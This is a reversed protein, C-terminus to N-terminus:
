RPGSRHRRPCRQAPTRPAAAAHRPRQVPLLGSTASTRPQIAPRVRVPTAATRSCTRLSREGVRDIARVDSGSRGARALSKSSSSRAPAPTTMVHALTADPLRRDGGRKGDRQDIAPMLRDNRGGIGRGVDAVRQPHGGAPSVTCRISGTSSVSLYVSSTSSAAVPSSPSPRSSSLSSRRDGHVSSIATNRANARVTSWARSRITTSSVAGGAVRQQQEIGSLAIVALYLAGIGVDGVLDGIQQGPQTIRLERSHQQHRERFGRRNM